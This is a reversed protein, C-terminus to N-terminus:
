CVDEAMWMDGDCAVKRSVGDEMDCWSFCMKQRECTVTVLLKEASVMEWTVGALM